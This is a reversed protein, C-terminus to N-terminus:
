VGCLFSVVDHPHYGGHDDHGGSMRRVAQRTAAQPAVAVRRALSLVRASSM